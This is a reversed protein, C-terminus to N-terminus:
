LGYILLEFRSGAINRDIFHLKKSTKIQKNYFPMCRKIPQNEILNEAISTPHLLFILGDCLNEQHYTVGSARLCSWASFASRSPM